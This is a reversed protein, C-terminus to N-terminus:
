WLVKVMMILWMVLILINVAFLQIFHDIGFAAFRNARGGIRRKEARVKLRETSFREKLKM